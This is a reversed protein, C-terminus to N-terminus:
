SRRAPLRGLEAAIGVAWTRVQDPNRYDGALKKAMSSAPFGRADPALRGGFLAHGRADLRGAIKAVAGVGPIAPPVAQEASRDLPGSCFLWVPRDRLERAFRRAFRRADRHWRGAYLSGGLIVADYGALSRVVHAPSVEVGVGAERLATGIWEAIEATGGRKSGYAVLVHTM